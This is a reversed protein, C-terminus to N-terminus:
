NSRIDIFTKFSRIETAPAPLSLILFYTGDPLPNGNLSRGDWTNEYGSKVFVLQGWRNYISIDYSPCTSPAQIILIDNINDGNPTLGNPVKIDALMCLENPDCTVSVTFCTDRSRCINGSLPDMRQAKICIKYQGRTAYEHCISDGSYLIPDSNDGFDVSIIDCDDGGKMPFCIGCVSKNFMQNTLFNKYFSTSDKCCLQAPNDACKITVPSCMRGKQCVKGSKDIGIVDACVMYTGSVSFTYSWSGNAAITDNIIISGDSFDPLSTLFYCGSFQSASVTVDCSDAIITFGKKLMTDFASQTACCVTNDCPLINITDGCIANLGCTNTATWLVLSTGQKYWGSANNTQTVNNMLTISQNCLDSTSPSTLTVTAGCGSASEVGQITMNRGCGDIKPNQPILSILQTCLSKNGCADTATWTRTIIQTCSTGSMIDVFTVVPNAQCNDTAIATGTAAPTSNTNCAITINAPCTIIPAINDTKTITQACTSINGCADTATWTRTIIQTCSTGSM